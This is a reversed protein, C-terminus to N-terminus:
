EARSTLFAGILVLVTGGIALATVTEDRVIVGLAIAVIPIFYIAVSGRTAGARGVLTAMAVYALATGGVGLAAIALLSSAAFDSSALGVIGWPTTLVLSVALARLLM